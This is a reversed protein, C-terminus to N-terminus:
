VFSIPGKSAGTEPFRGPRCESIRSRYVWGSTIRGLDLRPALQALREHRKTLFQFKHRLCSKMIGFLEKITELPMKEHFLDSMSNVFILSPKRLKVPQEFVIAISRLILDM